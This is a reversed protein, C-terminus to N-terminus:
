VAYGRLRPICLPVRMISVPNATPPKPKTPDDTTEFCLAEIPDGSKFTSKKTDEVIITFDTLADKSTVSVFTTSVLSKDLVGGLKTTFVSPDFPDFENILCALYLDFLRGNKHVLLSVVKLLLLLQGRKQLNGNLYLFLPNKEAVVKFNALSLVAKSIHM